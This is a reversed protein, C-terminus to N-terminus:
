PRSQRRSWFWAIAAPIGYIPVFAASENILPIGHNAWGNYGNALAAVLWFWIFIWAGDIPKTARSRNLLWSILLFVILTGIGIATFIIVHVNNGV